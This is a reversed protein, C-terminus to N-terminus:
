SDIATYGRIQADFVALKESMRQAIHCPKVDCFDFYPSQSKFDMAPGDHSVGDSAAMGTTTRLRDSLFTALAKYFRGAFAPHRGLEKELEARPVALLRSPETAVVSAEPPRKEVFSMEGAVDGIGPSAVSTGNALHVEASGSTLFYLAPVEAGAEIIIDGAEFLKIEGARALFLVDEETLDGM